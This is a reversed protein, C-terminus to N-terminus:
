TREKRKDNKNTNMGAFAMPRDGRYKINCKNCPKDYACTQLFTQSTINYKFSRTQLSIPPRNAFSTSSTLPYSSKYVNDSTQQQRNM